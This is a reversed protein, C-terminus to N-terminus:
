LHGPATAKSIAHDLTKITTARAATNRWFGVNMVRHATGISANVTCPRRNSPVIDAGDIRRYAEDIEDSYLDSKAMHAADIHQVAAAKNGLGEYALAFLYDLEARADNDVSADTASPHDYRYQTAQLERFASDFEKRDIYCKAIDPWYVPEDSLPIADLSSRMRDEVTAVDEDHEANDNYHYLVKYECSDRSPLSAAVAISTSAACLVAVLAFNVLLGLHKM